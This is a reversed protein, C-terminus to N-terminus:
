FSGVYDDAKALAQIQKGIEGVSIFREFDNIKLNDLNSFLQENDLIFKFTTSEPAKKM